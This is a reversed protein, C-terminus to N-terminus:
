EDKLIGYAYSDFWMPNNYADNRFFAKKIFHGERRMGIKELLKWSAINKTNCFAVIRHAKLINFGYDIIAKTSETGFGKNQFEPNFIFGLEWTKYHLPEIQNFYLHGIMKNNNKLIVSYFNNSLSRKKALRKAENEDIPAGPEYTYIVPLSLYEYLNKWDDKKFHRIILRETELM